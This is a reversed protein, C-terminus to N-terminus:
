VDIQRTSSGPQNCIRNGKTVAVIVHGVTRGCADHFNGDARTRIQNINGCTRTHRRVRRVDRQTCMSRRGTCIRNDHTVCCCACGRSVSHNCACHCAIHDGERVLYSRDNVQSGGLLRCNGRRGAQGVRKGSHVSQSSGGSVARSRELVTAIRVH